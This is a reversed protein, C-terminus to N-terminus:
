SWSTDTLGAALALALLEALASAPDDTQFQILSSRCAACLILNAPAVVNAQRGEHINLVNQDDTPSFCQSSWFSLGSGSEENVM